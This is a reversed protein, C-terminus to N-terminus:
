PRRGGGILDAGSLTSLDRPEPARDLTVGETIGGRKQNAFVQILRKIVVAHVEVHVTVVVVRLIEETPHTLM